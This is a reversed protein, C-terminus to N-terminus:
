RHTCTLADSLQDSFRPADGPKPPGLLLLEAQRVEDVLLGAPKPLPVEAVIDGLTLGLAIPVPPLGQAGSPLSADFQCTTETAPAGFLLCATFLPQMYPLLDTLPIPSGLAGSLAAALPLLGLYQCAAFSAPSAVNLVPKLADPVPPVPVQPAPPLPIPSGSDPPPQPKPKETPGGGGPAMSPIGSDVPVPFVSSLPPTVDSVAGSPALAGSDAAEQSGLVQGPAAAVQAAAAIPGRGHGVSASVIATAVIVAVLGTLAARDRKRM